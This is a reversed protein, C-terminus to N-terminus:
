IDKNYKDKLYEQWQTQKQGNVFFWGFKLDFWKEIKRLLEM